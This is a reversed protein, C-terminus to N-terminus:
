KYFSENRKARTPAESSPIWQSAAGSVEATAVVGVKSAYFAICDGEKLRSRGPTGAHMGWMGKDLWAILVDTATMGIDDRNGAPLLWCQADVIDQPSRAKM